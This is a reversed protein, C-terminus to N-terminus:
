DQLLLESHMEIGTESFNVVFSVRDMIGQAANMLDTVASQIEPLNELDGGDRTLAENMMAYYRKADMDMAFFPGPDAVAATLMDRLGEEMGEGVSVGLATDTMALHVIQGTASIQPLDLRVPIGDPELNLAMLDPSFMAGMAILGEANDTALIMRMDIGTPPIGNAIDGGELSSIEALFGKIGYVIPPVPSNLAARGASVETQFESLLECQLPSEELKQLQEAYFERSALLDIGVGFSMLGGSLSGLGPVPGVMAAVGPAIDERLEVVLKSAIRLVSLETYGTVLRPAVGALGAIESRCVESIASPDHGMLRHLEANVGSQENLFTDVLREFDVMGILYDALEHREAIAAVLGAGAVNEDPLELGLVRKLLTESLAGPVASMVFQDDIVAIIVRGDEDGVYRYQTNEVTGVNMSEGARSELNAITAEMLEGGSLSLRIVPLLGVGYLALDTNRDIGAGRLGEVSMLDVLGDVFPALAQGAVEAEGAVRTNGVIGRLISGYAKLATDLQPELKDAVDDPVDGPTVVLYPTDAPVYRLLGKEDRLSGGLDDADRSCSSGAMAVALCLVIVRSLRTMPM